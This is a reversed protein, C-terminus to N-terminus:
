DLTLTACIDDHISEEIADPVRDFRGPIPRSNLKTARNRWCERLQDTMSRWHKAAVRIIEHCNPTAITLTSDLSIIDSPLEWAGSAIM